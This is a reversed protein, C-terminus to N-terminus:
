ILKLAEILGKELAQEYSMNTDEKSIVELGVVYYWQKGDYRNPLVFVNINHIERLWKQLLSQSPASIRGEFWKDNNFDYSNYLTNPKINGKSYSDYTPWNFGKEKALKAAEFTILKEEM